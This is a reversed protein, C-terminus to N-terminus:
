DNYIAELEKFLPTEVFSKHSQKLQETTVAVVKVFTRPPPKDRHSLEKVENRLQPDVPVQKRTGDYIYRNYIIRAKWWREKVDREKQYAIAEKHLSLYHCFGTDYLYQQYITNFLESELGNSFSKRWSAVTEKSPMDFHSGNLAHNRLFREFRGEMESQRTPMAHESLAGAQLFGAIRDREAKAKAQAM